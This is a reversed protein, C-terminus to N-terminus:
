SEHLISLFKKNWAELSFNDRVGEWEEELWPKNFAENIALVWNQPSYAVSVFGNQVWESFGRAGFESAVVVRGMLLSESLKINSGGGFFIPVICVKSSHYVGLIDSVGVKLSVGELDEILKEMDAAPRVTSVVTLKVGSNMTKLEPWVHILFWKLGESNPKYSLKGVFLIDNKSAQVLRPKGSFLIQFPLNALLKGNLKGAESKVWIAIKAREIIRQYYSRNFQFIQWLRLKQIPNRENSIKSLMLEEYDDDVDLVFRQGQPLDRASNAYRCFIRDYFTSELLESFMEQNRANPFFSLGLKKLWKPDQSLPLTIFRFRDRLGDPIFLLEKSPYGDLALFDVSYDQLAALLFALTRQRKGDYAPFPSSPAIFLLKPM